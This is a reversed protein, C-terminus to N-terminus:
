RECVFDHEIWGEGVGANGAGINFCLEGKRHDALNIKEIEVLLIRRVSCGTITIQRGQASAQM